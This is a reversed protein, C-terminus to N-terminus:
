MRREFNSEECKMQGCRHETHYPAIREMMKKAGNKTKYHRAFKDDCSQWLEESEDNEIKKFRVFYGKGFEKDQYTIVWSM